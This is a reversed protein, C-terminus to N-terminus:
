DSFWIGYALTENKTKLIFALDDKYDLTFENSGLIRYSAKDMLLSIHDSIVFLDGQNRLDLKMRIT